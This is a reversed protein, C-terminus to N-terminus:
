TLDNPYYNEWKNNKSYKYNGKQNPLEMKWQGNLIRLAKNMERIRVQYEKKDDPDLPETDIKLYFARDYIYYFGVEVYPKWNGQSDKERWFFRPTHTEIEVLKRDEMRWEVDTEYTYYWHDALSVKNKDYFTFYGMTKLTYQNEYQKAAIETGFIKVPNFTSYYYDRHKEITVKRISM